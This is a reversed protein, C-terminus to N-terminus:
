KSMHSSAPPKQYKAQIWVRYMRVQKGRNVLLRRDVLLERKVLRCSSFMDHIEGETFFYARTGDGRVYFNAGLCHGTRFRLQAMDHRGYDRFLLCGGPKLFRYAQQVVGLMKSPDIASLTFILLIVDISNEDFPLNWDSSTADLQFANCRSEDYSKEKRLLDIAVSSFDCGYVYTPSDLNMHLIPFLTNGVGCGIEFIRMSNGKAESRSAMLESFETFLWNRDKFFDRKHTEYFHDWYSAAQQECEAVRHPALVVASNASVKAEAERQQEETWEVSDRLLHLLARWCSLTERVSLTVYWANHHYVDDTDTLRRNGFKPRQMM